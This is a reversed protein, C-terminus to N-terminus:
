ESVTNNFVSVLVVLVLFKLLAYVLVVLLDGIVM